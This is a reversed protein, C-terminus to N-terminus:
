LVPALLTIDRSLGMLDEALERGFQDSYQNAFMLATCTLLLDGQADFIPVGVAAVGELNAGIDVSWGRRRTERVEEMYKRFPM